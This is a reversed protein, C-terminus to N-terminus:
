KSLLTDLQGQRELAYLEDCGGVHTNGIFIQPVSTRGSLKVMEARKTPQTDVKIEEYKVGKQDLLRKANVCFPCWDSSYIITKM